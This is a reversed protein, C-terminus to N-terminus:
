SLRTAIKVAIEEVSFTKDVEVGSSEPLRREGGKRRLHGM